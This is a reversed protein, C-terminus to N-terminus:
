LKINVRFDNQNKEYWDEFAKISFYKSSFNDMAYHANNEEIVPLGPLLFIMRRARYAETITAASPRTVVSGCKAMIPMLSSVFPYVNIRSSTGFYSNIQELLKKNEGCAVHLILSEFRNHLSSIAEFLPGIGWGGGTILVQKIDGPKNKLSDYDKQVPLDIQYYKGRVMSLISSCLAPGLLGDIYNWFVYKWGPSMHYDSLVCLVRSDVEGRRKLASVWFAARHNVCIVTKYNFSNICDRLISFDGNKFFQEKIYKFYYSLPIKYILNLLWPAKTCLLYYRSFNIDRLQTNILKEIEEHKVCGNKNTLEFLANGVSYNGYGAKSSLILLPYEIKDLIVSDNM